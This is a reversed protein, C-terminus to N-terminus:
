RITSSYEGDLWSTIREPRSYTTVDDFSQQRPQSLSNRITALTPKVIDQYGGHTYGASAGMGAQQLGRRQICVPTKASKPLLVDHNNHYFIQLRIVLLTVRRAM